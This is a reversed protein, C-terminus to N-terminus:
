KLQILLKELEDLDEPFYDSDTIVNTTYAGVVMSCEADKGSALYEWYRYPPGYQRKFDSMTKIRLRNDFVYGYKFFLELTQYIATPNESVKIQILKGRKLSMKYAKGKLTDERVTM